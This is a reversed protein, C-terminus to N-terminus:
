NKDHQDHQSQVFGILKQIYLQPQLIKFLSVKETENFTNFEKKFVPHTSILHNLENMIDPESIVEQLSPSVLNIEFNYKLENDLSKVFETYQHEQILVIPNDKEFNHTNRVYEVLRDLQKKKGLHMEDLVSFLLDTKIRNSTNYYAILLTNQSFEKFISLHKANDVIEFNDKIFEVADLKNFNDDKLEFDDNKRLLSLFQEFDLVQEPAALNFINSPKPYFFCSSVSMSTKAIGYVYELIASTFKSM